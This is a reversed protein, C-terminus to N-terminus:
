KADVEKLMERISNKMEENIAKPLARELYDRAKEKYNLKLYVRGINVLYSADEEQLFMLGQEYAQVADALNDKKELIVGKLNYLPAFKANKEMGKEVYRLALDYRTQRIELMALNVYANEPTKYLPSNAAALLNEKALDFKGLELYAVGLYNYSDFNIPNLKIVKRFYDASKAFDRKNLYIIGLGYFADIIVQQKKLAQLLNIEANNYDGSSLYLLGQNLFYEASNAKIAPHLMTVSSLVFIGILVICISTKKKM